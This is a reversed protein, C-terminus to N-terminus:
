KVIEKEFQDFPVMGDRHGKVGLLLVQSFTM